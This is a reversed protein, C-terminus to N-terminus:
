HTQAWLYLRAERVSKSSRGGEGLFDMIMVMLRKQQTQQQALQARRSRGIRVGLDTGACLAVPYCPGQLEDLQHPGLPRTGLAM